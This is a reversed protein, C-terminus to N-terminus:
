VTDICKYIRDAEDEGLVDDYATRLVDIVSMGPLRRCPGISIDGENGGFDALAKEIQEGSMAHKSAALKVTEAFDLNVSEFASDLEEFARELADGVESSCQEQATLAEKQTEMQIVRATRGRLRKEM